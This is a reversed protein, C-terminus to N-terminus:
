SAPGPHTRAQNEFRTRQAWGVLLVLGIGIAFALVDTVLAALVILPSPTSIAVWWFGALFACVASLLLLCGVLSVVRELPKAPAHRARYEAYTEGQRMSM